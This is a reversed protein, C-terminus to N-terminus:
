PALLAGQIRAICPRLVRGWCSRAVRRVFGNWGDGLFWLRWVPFLPALLTSPEGLALAAPFRVFDGAPPRAAAGATGSEIPPSGPGGSLEATTAEGGAKRRACEEKAAGLRAGFQVPNSEGRM